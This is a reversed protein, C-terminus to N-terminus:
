DSESLGIIHTWKCSYYYIRRSYSARCSERDKTSVKPAMVPMKKSFELAEADRAFCAGAIYDEFEMTHFHHTGRTTRLCKYTEEFNEHLEESLLETADELALLKFFQVGEKNTCWVLTGMAFEKWRSKEGQYFKVVGKALVVMESGIVRTITANDAM